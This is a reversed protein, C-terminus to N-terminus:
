QAIEMRLPKSCSGQDFGSSCSDRSQAPPKVPFKRLDRGIQM